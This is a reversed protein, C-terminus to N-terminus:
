KKNSPKVINVPILERCEYTLARLHPLLLEMDEDDLLSLIPTGKMFMLIRKDIESQRPVLSDRKKAM